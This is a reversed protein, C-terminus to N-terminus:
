DYGLARQIAVLRKQAYFPDNLDLEDALGFRDCVADQVEPDLFLEIHHVRDPTGERRICRVLAQWDPTVNASLLDSKAM